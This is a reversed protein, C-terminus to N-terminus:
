FSLRVNSLRSAERFLPAIEYTDFGSEAGINTVEFLLDDNDYAFRTFDEVYPEITEIGGQMTPIAYSDGTLGSTAQPNAGHNEIAEHASRSIPIGLLNSEFVYINSPTRRMIRHMAHRRPAFDPMASPAAGLVYKKSPASEELYEAPSMVVAREVEMERVPRRRIDGQKFYPVIRENLMKHYRQSVASPTIGLMAAIEKSKYGDQLMAILIQRDVARIDLERCLEDITTSYSIPQDAFSLDNRSNRDRIRVDLSECIMNSQLSKIKDLMVFRFGGIMWTSLKVGPKRNMLPVWDKLVLSLYYEHALSYFDLGDRGSLNYTKDFHHYAIRCYGYFYDRTILEDHQRLGEIIQEDSLDSFFEMITVLLEIISRKLIHQVFFAM